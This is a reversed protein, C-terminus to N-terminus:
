ILKLLTITRTKKTSWIMIGSFLAFDSMTGSEEPGDNAYFPHQQKMM